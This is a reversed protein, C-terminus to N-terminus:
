IPGTQSKQKCEHHRKRNGAHRGSRGNGPVGVATPQALGDAIILPRHTLANGYPRNHACAYTRDDAGAVTPAPRCASGYDTGQQAPRKAADAALGHCVVLRAIDRTFVPEIGLYGM